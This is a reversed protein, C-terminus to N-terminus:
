ANWYRCTEKLSCISCMNAQIMEPGLGVFFSVSKKPIMMGGSTLSIGAKSPELLSFIQPQGVEVPWETNGPSLPSSAQLGESEVREAINGYVQQALNEVAANGLGDLALAYLPDQYFLQATAEELEPGITCVAALVRQAGSLQKTVLPGTLAAGDVMLIREHRHERVVNEATLTMPHILRLGKVFAREAAKQFFPKRSYVIQPDAGQGRLIDDESLVINWNKSRNMISQNYTIEM